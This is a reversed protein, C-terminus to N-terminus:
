PWATLVLKAAAIMLVLALLGLLWRTSLLRLGLWTGLVAGGMVALALWPWEDPLSAWTATGALLATTSNALCRLPGLILKM